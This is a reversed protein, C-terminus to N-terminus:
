VTIATKVDPDNSSVIKVPVWVRELLGPDNKLEETESWRIIQHSTQGGNVIQYGSIRFRDGMTSLGTAMVTLGNNLFPFQDRKGSQLTEMIRRNVSNNAGLDLRVNDDFIGARVEGNEDKLLKLVEKASLLGIYAEEVNGTAPITQHKEFLFPINQPGYREKQK